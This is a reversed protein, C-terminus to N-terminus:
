RTSLVLRVPLKTRRFFDGRAEGTAMSVAWGRAVEVRSANQDSKGLVINGYNYQNVKGSEVTATTSSWFWEQDVPPFTQSDLGQTGPSNKVLGRLEAATPLRWNLGEAQKRSVALAIAEARDLLLPAGDCVKGNWRMGEACRPWVFGSKRDKVYAGTDSAAIDPVLRAEEARGSGSLGVLLIAFFTPLAPMLIPKSM